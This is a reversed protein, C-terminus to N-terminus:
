ELSPNRALNKIFAMDVVKQGKAHARCQALVRVHEDESFPPYDFVFRYFVTLWYWILSSGRAKSFLPFLNKGGHYDYWAGRCERCLVTEKEGAAATKCEARKGCKVCPWRKAVIEPDPRTEMARLANEREARLRPTAERAMELMKNAIKRSVLKKKLAQSLSYEHGIPCVIWIVEEDIVDALDDVPTAFETFPWEEGRGCKMVLPLDGPKLQITM